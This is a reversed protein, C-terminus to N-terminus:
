NGVDWMDILAPVRYSGMPGIRPMERASESYPPATPIRAPEASLSTRCIKFPVCSSCARPRRPM